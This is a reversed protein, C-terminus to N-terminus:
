IHILSLSNVTYSKAGLEVGRSLTTLGGPHTLLDRLPVTGSKPTPIRIAWPSNSASKLRLQGAKGAVPVSLHGAEDLIKDLRELSLGTAELAKPDVSVLYESDRLVDALYVAQTTTGGTKLIIREFEEETTLRGRAKLVMEFPIGAPAPPQGLGGAAVQVNQDRIADLVDAPVLNRSAMKDPDLWVRMSFDRNGFPEVSGVGEIRALAENIRTTAYNGLFLQDYLEKGTAPNTESILNVCLLISPSRKKTVVGQRRAEEPLRALAASVRNQVLVQAMDLDTGVQFTVDLVMRGDNTSRSNIYLMREVGNIEQELPAAVTEAVTRANAGPFTATVQVVPPVVEPYQALPLRLYAVGGVLMVVVSLVTAFVPRDIFFRSIM